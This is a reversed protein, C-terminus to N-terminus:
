RAGGKRAIALINGVPLTLPLSGARVRELAALLRPKAAGLPALRLWYRLPYRNRYRRVQIDSFGARQLSDRLTRRCFLQLHEIDYIPSRDGLLRNLPARWDHAVVFVAGGEQLLTHAGRLLALPDAVHEVIHLASVLSFRGPEFDAARFVDARILARIEPRAAELAGRSPEVGAVDAFGLERLVDLFAGDGAGVDLASEDGPLTPLVGSLLKGYTDAAHRSEEQSDYAATRYAAAVAEASPAPSAFVLGCAACDLLRWHMLEPAKRAAFAFGDLQASDVREAHRVRSSDAPTSCAPCPRASTQLDLESGASGQLVHGM